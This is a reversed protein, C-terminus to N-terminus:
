GGYTIGSAHHQLMYRIAPRVSARAPVAIEIGGSGLAELDAGEADEVDLRDVIAELSAMGRFVKFPVKVTKHSEPIVVPKHVVEGPTEPTASLAGGRMVTDGGFLVSQVLAGDRQVGGGASLPIDQGAA